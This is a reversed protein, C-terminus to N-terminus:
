NVDSSAEVFGLEYRARESGAVVRIRRPFNGDCSAAIYEADVIKLDKIKHHKNECKECAEQTRFERKCCECVYTVIKKM